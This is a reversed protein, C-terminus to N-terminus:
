AFACGQSTLKGAMPYSVEAIVGIVRVNGAIFTYDCILDASEAIVRVNGAVLYRHAASNNM